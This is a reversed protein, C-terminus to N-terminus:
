LDHRHVHWLSRGDHGDFVRVAGPFAGKGRITASGVAFDTRGDGSVDGLEVLAVGFHSDGQPGCVDEARAHNCGRLGVAEADEAFPLFWAGPGGDPVFSRPAAVLFGSPAPLDPARRGLSAGFSPGGRARLGSLTSLDRGSLVLVPQSAGAFPRAALLDGLGDGDRDGAAALVLGLVRDDAVRERLVSLDAGSLIRLTARTDDDTDERDAPVASAVLDPVADGDVDDLGLVAVGLREGPAGVRAALREGTAGSLTLVLGTEDLGDPGNALALGVVVDPLGDGSVDDIRALAPSPVATWWPLLHGGREVPVRWLPSGDRGSLAEVAGLLGPEGAAGVVVDGVSDGDVDGVALLTVGFREADHRGVREWLLAGDGGSLVSVRGPGRAARRADWPDSVAVDPVGDGNVDGPAALAVGFLDGDARAPAALLLGASAALGVLIRANM